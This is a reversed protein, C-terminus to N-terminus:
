RMRCVANQHSGQQQSGAEQHIAENRCRNTCYINGNLGYPQGLIVEGCHACHSLFGGGRETQAYYHSRVPMGDLLLRQVTKTRGKQLTSM